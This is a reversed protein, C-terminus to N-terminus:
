PTDGAGQFVQYDIYKRSENLYIYGYEVATNGEKDVMGHTSERTHEIDLCDTFARERM